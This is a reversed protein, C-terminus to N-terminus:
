PQRLLLRVITSFADPRAEIGTFTDNYVFAEIMRTLAYALTDADVESHFGGSAEEERILAAIAAVTRSQVGAERSTILRFALAPESELFKQMYPAHSVGDAVYDLVQIIRDAGRGSARQRGHEISRAAISWMVDAILRERDGTWRYLTNRSVGLETALANMDIRRGLLFWQRALHFADAPTAKRQPREGESEALAAAYAPSMPVSTM